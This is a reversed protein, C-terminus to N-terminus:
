GVTRKEPRVYGSNARITRTNQAAAPRQQYGSAAATATMTATMQGAPGRRAVEGARSRVKHAAGRGM